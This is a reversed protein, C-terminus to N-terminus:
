WATWGGDVYIETGTVYSSREDLLFDFVSTLESLGMLRKMPVHSSYRSVFVPDYVRGKVGGLTVTNIRFKPAYYTALYKTLMVLAAKSISYGIPKIFNNYIYHRPSTRGYISSINIIVGRKNNKIFNRCLDFVSVTNVDLYERLESLQVNVPKIKVKSKKAVPNHGHGVIMGYLNKHERFWKAVFKEDKLDHGLQLDLKLVEFRGQLHKVLKKGILGESGTIVLKRLNSKAM